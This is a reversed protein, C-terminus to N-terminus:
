ADRAVTLYVLLSVGAVLLLLFAYRLWFLTTV